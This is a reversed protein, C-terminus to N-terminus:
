KGAKNQDEANKVFALQEKYHSQMKAIPWGADMSVVEVGVAAGRAKLESHLTMAFAKREAETKEPKQAPTPAHGDVDEDAYVGLVSQWAYRRLYSIIVGANQAVSLGKSDSLPLYITDEMWEGSVHTLVTTLGINGDTSTPFQIISLGHKALIPRTTEIVAGLDAYKNKLFPNVSNMKVIPMEGQAKSIADALKIISQSKM